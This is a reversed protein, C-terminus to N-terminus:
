LGLAKAVINRQIESTGSYLTGSVANRLDREIEYETAYGYGGHIQIADLCSAVWAESVYLKAIATEVTPNEEEGLTAAARYSLLRAVDLRVKM